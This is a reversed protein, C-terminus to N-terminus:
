PKKRENETLRFFHVGLCYVHDRTKAGRSLELVQSAFAESLERVRGIDHSDFPLLDTSSVRSETPTAEFAQSSRELLQQHFKRIAANPISSRTLVQDKTKRLRGAPDRELLELRLLRDIAAQAELKSIGLAAAAGSANLDFGSVYTLELIAFHYWDSVARFLDSSLDHTKRQSSLQRLREELLARYEPDEEQAQQVLLCFYQTESESLKLKVALRLAWDTSLPKKGALVASLYSDALGMKKAFARLSLPDGRLTRADALLSKLYSRYCSHEFIM